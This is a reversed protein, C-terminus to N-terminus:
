IKHTAENPYPFPQMINQPLNYLVITEMAVSLGWQSIISFIIDGGKTPQKKIRDKKYKSTVLVLM